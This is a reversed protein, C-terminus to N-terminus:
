LLNQFACTRGDAHIICCFYRFACGKRFLLSNLPCALSFPNIIDNIFNYLRTHFFMGHFPLIDISGRYLSLDETYIKVLYFSFFFYTATLELIDAVRERVDFCGRSSM